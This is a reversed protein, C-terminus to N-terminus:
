VVDTGSFPFENGLISSPQGILMIIAAVTTPSLLISEKSTTSEMFALFAVIWGRLGYLEWGHAAYALAYAIAPRNNFVRRFNLIKVKEKIRPSGQVPSVVLVLAALPGITAIGFAWRWDLVITVWGSMLFSMSAGVTDAQWVLLPHEDKGYHHQWTEWLVGRRAYPSSAALLIAGPVTAMAPRLAEVVERDPNASEDDSRWFAVEDLLAAVVTYGRVSRFSATHVEITIQNALDISEATERVVLRALMPVNELLGKVYRM